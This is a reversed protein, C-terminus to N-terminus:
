FGDGKSLKLPERHHQRTRTLARRLIVWINFSSPFSVTALVAAVTNRQTSESKTDDGRQMTRLAPPFLRVAAKGAPHFAGCRVESLGDFKGTSGPGRWDERRPSGPFTAIGHELHNATM